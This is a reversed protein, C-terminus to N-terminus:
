KSIRLSNLKLFNRDRKISDIMSESLVSKGEVGGTESTEPIFRARVKVNGSDPTFKVANGVLNVLM